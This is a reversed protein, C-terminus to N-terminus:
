VSCSNCPPAASGSAPPPAPFRKGQQEALDHNVERGEERLWFLQQLSACSVWFSSTACPVMQRNILSIMLVECGEERVQVATAPLRLQGLLQLHRQSGNEKSSLSIM